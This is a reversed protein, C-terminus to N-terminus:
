KLKKKSTAVYKEEIEDYIYHITRNFPIQIKKRNPVYYGNQTLFLDYLKEDTTNKNMVLVSNYVEGEAEFGGEDCPGTGKDFETNYAFVLNFGEGSSNPKFWNESAYGGGCGNFDYFHKISIVYSHRSIQYLKCKWSVGYSGFHGAIKEFNTIQWINNNNNKSLEVLSYMYGCSHCWNTGKSEDININTVFVIYKLSDNLSFITDIQTFTIPTNSSDVTWRMKQLEGLNPTWKAAKLKADYEAEFLVELLTITDLQKFGTTFYHGLDFIRVVNDKHREIASIRKTETQPKCTCLCLAMIVYLLTKEM